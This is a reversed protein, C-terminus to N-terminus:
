GTTPSGSRSCVDVELEFLKDLEPQKLVPEAMVRQRLDDFAQQEKM